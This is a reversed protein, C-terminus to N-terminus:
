FKWNNNIDDRYAAVFGDETNFLVKDYYNTFDNVMSNAVWEILDGECQNLFYMEGKFIRINKRTVVQQPCGECYTSIVEYGNNTLFEALEKANAVSWYEKEDDHSVNCLYTLGEITIIRQM